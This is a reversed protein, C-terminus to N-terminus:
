RQLLSTLLVSLLFRMSTLLYVHSNSAASAAPIPLAPHLFHPLQVPFTGEFNARLNVKHQQSLALTGM